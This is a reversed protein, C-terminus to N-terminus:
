LVRLVFFQKVQYKSYAKHHLNEMSSIRQLMRHQCLQQAFTCSSVQTTSSLKEKQLSFCYQIPIIEFPNQSTLLSSQFLM